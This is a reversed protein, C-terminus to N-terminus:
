NRFDQTIMLGYIGGDEIGIGIRGFAPNLINARHGPSHMLGSHAQLLTPALAVNEGAALFHLGDNRMRTFPDTGEPTYHSFYGRALMDVSHKRAVGTLQPDAKLPAIGRETREKNVLRLMEAELDPRETPNQVTFPLKIFKQEGKQEGGEARPNRILHEPIDAFVPSLWRELWVAKGALGAALKSNHAERSLAGSFPMLLLFVALLTAWIYGDVLGPVIGLIKNLASTHVYYPTRLLIRDALLDLVIRAIIVVLIFALALSFSGIGPFIELLLRSFPRYAVFGIVLSGLWTLLQLAALVFGRRVAVLVCALLIIFLIFDIFNM